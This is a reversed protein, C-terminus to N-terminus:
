YGGCAPLLPELVPEQIGTECICFSISLTTLYGPGRGVATGMLSPALHSQPPLAGDGLAQCLGSPWLSCPFGGSVEPSSVGPRAPGLPDGQLWRRGSLTGRGEWAQSERAEPDESSGLIGWEGRRQRRIVDGDKLPPRPPGEGPLGQVRRGPCPVWEQVQQSLIRICM